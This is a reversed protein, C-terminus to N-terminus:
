RRLYKCTAVGACFFYLVSTPSAYLCQASLEKDSRRRPLLMIARRKFHANQATTADNKTATEASVGAFQVKSSTRPFHIRYSVSLVPSLLMSQESFRLDKFITVYALCSLFPKVQKFCVQSLITEKQIITNIFCLVWTFECICVLNFQLKKTWVNSHILIPVLSMPSHYVVLSKFDCDISSHVKCKGFILLNTYLQRFLLLNKRLRM